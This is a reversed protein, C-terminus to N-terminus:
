ELRSKTTNKDIIEDYYEACEKECILPPEESNWGEHYIYKQYMEDDIIEDLNRKKLNNWDPDNKMKEQLKRDANFLLSNDLDPNDRMQWSNAFFCCPWVRMDSTVEWERMEKEHSDCHIKCKKM